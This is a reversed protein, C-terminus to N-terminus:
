CMHYLYACYCVLASIRQIDRLVCDFDWDLHKINALKVESNQDDKIQPWDGNRRLGLPCVSPSFLTFNYPIEENIQIKRLSKKM